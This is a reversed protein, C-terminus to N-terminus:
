TQNATFYKSLFLIIIHSLAGSQDYEYKIKTWKETAQEFCLIDVILPTYNGMKFPYWLDWQGLEWWVLGFFWEVEIAGWNMFNQQYSPMDKCILIVTPNGAIRHNEFSFRTPGPISFFVPHWTPNPYGNSVSALTSSQKYICSGSWGLVEIGVFCLM